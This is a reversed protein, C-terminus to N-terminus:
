LWKRAYINGEVTIRLTIAVQWEQGCNPTKPPIIKEEMIVVRDVIGGLTPDDTFVKNSACSYAFTFLVSDPTEPLNFTISLTYADLLILREKETRGCVTIAIKPSVISDGSYTGFEVYPIPYDLQGLLENMRSSLLNEVAKIIAEEIFLVRNGSM